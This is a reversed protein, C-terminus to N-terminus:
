SRAWDMRATSSAAQMDTAMREVVPALTCLMERWYSQRPQGGTAYAARLVVVQKAADQTPELLVSTVMSPDQFKTTEDFGLQRVRYAEAVRRGAMAEEGIRLAFRNERIAPVTPEIPALWPAARKVVSVVAKGIASCPAGLMHLEWMCQLHGWELSAKGRGHNRGRKRRWSPMSNYRAVITNVEGESVAQLREHLEDADTRAAKLDAELQKVKVLRSEAEKAQKEAKRARKRARSTRLKEVKTADIKGNAILRETAAKISAQLKARATQRIATREKSIAAKYLGKLSRLKEKRSVALKGNAHKLARHRGEAVQARKESVSLSKQLNEKEEQLEKLQEQFTPLEEHEERLANLLRDRHGHILKGVRYACAKWRFDGAGGKKKSAGAKSRPLGGDSGKWLKLHHVRLDDRSGKLDSLSHIANCIRQLRPEDRASAVARAIPELVDGYKVGRQPNVSTAQSLINSVWKDLSENTWELCLVDLALYLIETDNADGPNRDFWHM